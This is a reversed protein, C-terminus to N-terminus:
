RSSSLPLFSRLKAGRVLFKLGNNQLIHFINRAGELIGMHFNEDDCQMQSIKWRRVPLRGHQNAARHHRLASSAFDAFTPPSVAADQTEHQAGDRNEERPARERMVPHHPFLASWIAEALAAATMTEDAAAGEERRRRERDHKWQARIREPCLAHNFVAAFEGLRSTRAGLWSDSVGERARTGATSPPRPSRGVGASHRNPRPPNSGSSKEAASEKEETEERSAEEEGATREPIVGRGEAMAPAASEEFRSVILGTAAAALSAGLLLTWLAPPM